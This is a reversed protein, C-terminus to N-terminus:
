LHFAPFFPPFVIFFCHLTLKLAQFRLRVDAKTELLLQVTESSGELCALM